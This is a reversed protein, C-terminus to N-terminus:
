ARTGFYRKFAVAVEVTWGARRDPTTREIFQEQSLGAPMAQLIELVYSEDFIPKTRTM